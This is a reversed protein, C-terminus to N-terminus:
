FIASGSLNSSGVAQNTALSSCNYDTVQPVQGAWVTTSNDIVQLESGSSTLVFGACDIKSIKRM